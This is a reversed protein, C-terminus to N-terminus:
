DADDIIECLKEMEEDVADFKVIVHRLITKIDKITKVKDWNIVYYQLHQM